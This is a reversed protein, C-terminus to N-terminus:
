FVEKELLIYPDPLAVLLGLLRGEFSRTKQPAALKVELEHAVLHSTVADVARLALMNAGNTDGAAM